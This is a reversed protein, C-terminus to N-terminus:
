ETSGNVPDFRPSAAINPFLVTSTVSIAM